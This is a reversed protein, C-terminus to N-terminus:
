ASRRVSPSTNLKALMVACIKQLEQLHELREEANEYTPHIHKIEMPLGGSSLRHKDLHSCEKAPFPLVFRNNEM